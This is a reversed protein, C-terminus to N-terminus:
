TWTGRSRRGTQMCTGCLGARGRGGCWGSVTALEVQKARVIARRCAAPCLVARLVRLLCLEPPRLAPPTHRLTAYPAHRQPGHRADRHIPVCAHVHHARIARARAQVGQRDRQLPGRRQADDALLGAAGARAAVRKRRPWPARLLAACSRGCAPPGPLVGASQWAATSCLAFRADSDPMAGLHKHLERRSGVHGASPVGPEAKSRM